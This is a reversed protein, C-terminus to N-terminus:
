KKHHLVLLPLFTHAAIQQLHDRHFAALWFSRARCGVVLLDAQQRFCFQFISEETSSHVEVHASVKPCPLRKHLLALGAEAQQRAAPSDDPLTHLLQLEAGFYSAMQCVFSMDTFSEGKLDTAYVIKRPPAFSVHPPVLLVPCPAERLLYATASDEFGEQFGEHGLVLLDAQEERAVQLISTTTIGYKIKSEYYVPAEHEQRLLREILADLKDQQQQRYAPDQIAEVFPVAEYPALEVMVPEYVNHLLVVRAGLRQALADSYLLANESCASFDTPCLITEM